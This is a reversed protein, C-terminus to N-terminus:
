SAAAEQADDQEEQAKRMQRVTKKLQAITYDKQMLNNEQEKAINRGTKCIRTFMRWLANFLGHNEQVLKMRSKEKQPQAMSDTELDGILKIAAAKVEDTYGKAELSAKNDDMNSIVSKFERVIGEDNKIKIQKRLEKFGFDSVTLELGGERAGTVFEEFRNATNLGAKYHGKIRQTIIKKEEMLKKPEIIESASTILAQYAAILADDYHPTYNKFLTKDRILTALVLKTLFPLEEIRCDIKLEENM